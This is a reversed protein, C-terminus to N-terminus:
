FFPLIRATSNWGTPFQFACFDLVKKLALFLLIGDRQSNFGIYIVKDNKLITFYFEMGNPISVLDIQDSSNYTYVTSNWGTPFQFKLWALLRCRLCRLIGDRQSNFSQPLRRRNAKNKVTSNWGTPFQFWCAKIFVDRFSLYFEMGNPISVGYHSILFGIAETSNWGTPFQFQAYKYLTNLPESYFEMGNPISVSLRPKM